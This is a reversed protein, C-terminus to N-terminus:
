LRHLVHYAVFPKPSCDFMSQDPPIRIPFGVWNVPYRASFVYTYPAFASFQFM